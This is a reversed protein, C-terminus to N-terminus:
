IYGDGTDMANITSQSNGQTFFVPYRTVNNSPIAQYQNTDVRFTLNEGQTVSGGTVDTNQTADWIRIDLTPDSAVIVIVPNGSNNAAFGTVNSVLYWNGAYGGFDSPSVLFSGASPGVNISKTPSTTLVVAASAWWGITTSTPDQAQAQAQLVAPTLNLGQEGVYVTGSQNVNQAVAYFYASAPMVAVLVFLALAVLAITFRKTM